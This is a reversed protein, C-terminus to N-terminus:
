KFLDKGTLESVEDINQALNMLICFFQFVIMILHASSYIKRILMSGTTYRFIFHGFGQMLRINPMLDAVLGLYKPKNM